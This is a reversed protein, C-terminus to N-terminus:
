DQLQQFIRLLSSLPNLFSGRPQSKSFLLPRVEMTEWACLSSLVNPFDIGQFRTASPSLFTPSFDPHTATEWDCVWCVTTQKNPPALDLCCSSLPGAAWSFAQLMHRHLRPHASHTSTPGPVGSVTLAWWKRTVSLPLSSFGWLFSYAVLLFFLLTGTWVGLFTWFFPCTLYLGNFM